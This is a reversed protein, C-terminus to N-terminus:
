KWAAMEANYDPRDGADQLDMGKYRSDLRGITFGEDRLLEKWFFSPPVALNHQLIVESSVVVCVYIHDNLCCVAFLNVSLVPM